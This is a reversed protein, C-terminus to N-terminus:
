GPAQDLDLGEGVFRQPGVPGEGSLWLTLIM